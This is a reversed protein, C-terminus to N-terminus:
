RFMTAWRMTDRNGNNDVVRVLRGLNNYFYSIPENSTQAFLLSSAAFLVIFGLNRLCGLQTHNSM